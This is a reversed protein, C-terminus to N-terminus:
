ARDAPTYVVEAGVEGDEFISVVYARDMGFRAQLKGLLISGITECSQGGFQSGEPLWSRGLDRLDHFEVERDAHRVSMKIEVHFLHRHPHGLYARAGEADPWHHFGEFTFRMVINTSIFGAIKKSM